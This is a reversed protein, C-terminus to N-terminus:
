AQCLQCDGTWQKPRKDGSKGAVLITFFFFFIFVFSGTYLAENVEHRQSHRVRELGGMCSQM